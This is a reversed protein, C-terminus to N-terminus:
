PNACELSFRIAPQGDGVAFVVSDSGISLVAGSEVRLSGRVLDASAGFEFRWSGHVKADRDISAEFRNVGRRAEFQHEQVGSGDLEFSVAGNVVIHGHVRETRPSLDLTTRYQLHITSEEDRSARLGPVSSNITTANNSPVPDAPLSIVTATNTLTGNTTPVVRLVLTKSVGAGLSPIVCRISNGPQFNCEASTSQALVSSPYNDQVIVSTATAPGNNHVVISYTFASGIARPSSASKSISVDATAAV